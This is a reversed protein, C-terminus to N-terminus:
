LTNLFHLPYKGSIIIIGGFRQCGNEGNAYKGFPCHCKYSGITNKCKGECPYREPYKCEDIDIFVYPILIHNYVKFSNIHM